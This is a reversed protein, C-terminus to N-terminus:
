GPQELPHVQIVCDENFGLIYNLGVGDLHLTVAVGCRYIGGSAIGADVSRYITYTSAAGIPHSQVGFAQNPVGPGMGEAYFNARLNIPVVGAIQQLVTWLAGSVTVTARLWFREGTDLINQDLEPPGIEVVQLGTVDFDFLTPDNPQGPM